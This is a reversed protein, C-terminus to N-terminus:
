PRAFARTADDAGEPVSVLIQALNVEADRRAEAQRSAIAADVEEDSVVIRAAVERERTREVMIQDRLQARFRVLDLGEQRLREVLQPITLQNQEAVSQVARDLEAEDVRWGADRAHTVVVREQVLAELAQERLEADTPRPQGSRAITGRLLEIRRNLEGATVLEQNVVAVIHDGGRSPTRDQARAASALVLASAAGVLALALGFPRLRDFATM